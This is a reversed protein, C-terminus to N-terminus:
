APSPNCAASAALILRRAVADAAGQYYSVQVECSKKMALAVIETQVRKEDRLAPMNTIGFTAGDTYICYTLIQSVYQIATQNNLGYFTLRVTEQVLQSAPQDYLPSAGSDQEAAGYIYNLTGFGGQGFAFRGFGSGSPNAVVGQDWSPYAQLPTTSEPPIHAAIYPPGVNTPVAFSPYVPIVSLSNGSPAFTGIWGPMGIWIPLSNSVIPATPIQAQNNVLQSLLPPQVAIGVYHHTEAQKYYASRSSFAFLIPSPTLGRYPQELRAIWLVNPAITNFEQIPEETTFTIRNLAITEDENQRVDVSYHLSGAVSLTVGTSVWFVYGDAPLVYRQYRTFCVHQNRDIIRLGADMAGAFQSAQGLGEIVSPM